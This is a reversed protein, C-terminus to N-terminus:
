VLLQKVEDLAVRAEKVDFQKILMRQTEALKEMVRADVYNFKLVKELFKAALMINSNAIQKQAEGIANLIDDRDIMMKGIPDYTNKEGFAYPSLLDLVVNYENIMADHNNECDTIRQEKVAFEQGKALESLKKAGINASASKVGHAEIQYNEWDKNNFLKQLLEIKEKGTEFFTQLVDVYIEESGACNTIGFLADISINEKNAVIKDEFEQRKELILQNYKDRAEDSVVKSLLWRKLVRELIKIDVPKSIYDSFGNNLFEDKMGTLANATLAIIPLEKYYKDNLSRVIKTAEIGDMEPMMHDMFVLDYVNRQILDVAERGSKATEAEIGYKNLIKCIVKLNIDNDDVVLINAGEITFGFNSTEMDLIQRTEQQKPDEIKEVGHAVKQMITVTFTTGVGYVSKVEIDGDMMQALNKSIPLGLGTGEIGRTAKDDVQEFESFLKHMDEEKIGIGSDEIDFKLIQFDEKNECTATFNIYGDKTFKMANNIINILIQRVRIIDGHLWPAIDKSISVNFQLGKKEIPIRMMNVVDNFLTETEYDANTIEVKGAEIKSLDLIDNILALLNSSANKIDHAYDNLKPDKEEDLLLESLGSIANIPTRIEHSMRALFDSKAQNAREIDEKQENLKEILTSLEKKEKGLENKVHYLCNTQTNYGRAIATVMDQCTKYGCAGCNISRDEPKEKGLENFIREREENSVLKEYVFSSSNFNRMFDKLQLRKFQLEMRKKNRSANHGYFPSQPAKKMDNLAVQANKLMQDNNEYKITTGTGYECGDMCVLAEIFDPIEKKDIIKNKLVDFYSFVHNGGSITRTFKDPTYCSLIDALIGPTGAIPSGGIMVREAEVDDFRSLEYKNVENLLKKYTVNYSVIDSTNEDDFEDKRAICPSLVAFKTNINKYKSLYIAACLTPSQIPLLKTLLEPKHKQIYNSVVPCFNTIWGRGENDKLYNLIAWITILSGFDIYFINKVGKEKLMGFIKKYTDPYQLAFSSSVLVSINSDQNNLDNFFRETDDRYSRAGHQCATICNGCNICKSGDVLIVNGNKGREAVNVGLVPCASICKNCGICHDNTYILGQNFKM